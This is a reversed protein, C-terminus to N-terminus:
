GIKYWKSWSGVLKIDNPKSDLWISPIIKKAEQIGAAWHKYSQLDPRNMFWNDLEVFGIKSPKDAQPTKPNWYPYILSTITDTYQQRYQWSNLDSGDVIYKLNPNNLFFNKIVHSQKIVIQPLDPTWYFLEDVFWSKGEILSKSGTGLSTFYDLFAYYYENNKLLVRPKDIGTVFAVTRGMEYQKRASTSHEFIKNRGVNNPSFRTSVDTWIWDASQYGTAVDNTWDYLTVKFKHTKALENLYPLAVVDIERVVSEPNKSLTLQNSDSSFPGFCFIEDIKINNFLFSQLINTSDSGGSFLLVVYDYQDRIQQARQRYLDWLTEKPEHIWDCSTFIEDNFNWEPFMGTRSSAMIAQFKSIYKQDGVQYFGRKLIPDVIANTM